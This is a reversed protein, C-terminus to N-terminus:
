NLVAAICFLLAQKNIEDATNVVFIREVAVDPRPNEWEAIYAWGNEAKV